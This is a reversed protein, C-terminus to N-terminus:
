NLEAQRSLYKQFCILLLTLIKGLFAIDSVYLKTVTKPFCFYSLSFSEAHDSVKGPQLICNSQNFWCMVTEKTSVQINGAHSTFM